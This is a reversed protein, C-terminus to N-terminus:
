KVKWAWVAKFQAMKGASQPDEGANRLARRVFAALVGIFLGAFAGLIVILARKPKSKREPPQAVDVQQVLPGEKAEDARASEYQAMMINMMAEHAKIDRYSKVAQQQIPSTKEGEGSGQELKRLQARMAALESGIRQM